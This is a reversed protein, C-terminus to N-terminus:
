GTMPVNGRCGDWTKLVVCHEFQMLDQYEPVATQGCLPVPYIRLPPGGLEPDYIVEAGPALSMRLLLHNFQIVFRFGFGNYTQWQHYQCGNFTRFCKGIM